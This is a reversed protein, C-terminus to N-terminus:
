HPQAGRETQARARAAIASQCRRRAEEAVGALVAFEPIHDDWEILTPVRGYRAVAHEYLAWVEPRVPHDHTDLLYHGHDSHGALHFQVVRDM